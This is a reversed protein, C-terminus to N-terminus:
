AGTRGRDRGRENCPGELEVRDQDRPVGRGPVSVGERRERPRPEEAGHGPGARGAETYRLLYAKGGSRPEVHCIIAEGKNEEAQWTHSAYLPTWFM